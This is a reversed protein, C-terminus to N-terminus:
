PSLRLGTLDSLRMDIRHGQEESNPGKPPSGMLSSPKLRLNDAIRDVITIRVRESPEYVRVEFGAAVFVQAIGAGMLGGGVVAVTQKDRM